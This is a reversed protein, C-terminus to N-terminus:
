KVEFAQNGDIMIHFCSVKMGGNVLVVLFDIM